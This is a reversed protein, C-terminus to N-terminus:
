VPKKDFDRGDSILEVPEGRAGDMVRLRVDEDSLSSLGLGSRLIGILRTVLVREGGRYILVLGLVEDMSDVRSSFLGGGERGGRDGNPAIGIEADLESASEGEFM